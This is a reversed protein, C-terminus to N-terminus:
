PKLSGGEGGGGPHLNGRMQHVRIHGSSGSITIYQHMFLM